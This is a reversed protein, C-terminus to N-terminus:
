TAELSDGSALKTGDASLSVSHLAARHFSRVLWSRSRPARCAGVIVGGLRRGVRGQHWRCILVHLPNSSVSASALQTLSPEVRGVRDRELSDGSVLKTGGCVLIRQQRLQDAALARLSWSRASSGVRGVRDRPGLQRGVRGQHWRCVLVRQQRIARHLAASALQTLSSSSVDWVIVHRLTARRLKTGDASLVRQHRTAPGTSVPAAEHAVNISLDWVIVNGSNDGSAVKTGDASLCVSGRTALSAGPWSRSRRAVRGM